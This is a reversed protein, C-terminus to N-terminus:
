ESDDSVSEVQWKEIHYHKGIGLVNLRELEANAAAESQYIRSVCRGMEPVNFILCWVNPPDRFRKPWLVEDTM